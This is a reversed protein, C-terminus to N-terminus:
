DKTITSDSQISDQEIQTLTIQAEEKIDKNGSHQIISRLTAKAQFLEGKEIYNRAILLYSRDVWQTYSGYNANLDFLIDLSKDYDGSQYAIMGLSYNSEAGYADKEGTLLRFNEEAKESENLQLWSRAKIMVAEQMANLPKWEAKIIEDAALIADNYEGMKLYLMMLGQRANYTDKPTLNLDILLKYAQESEPFYNLQKNIEGLRNLIRGTLPNRVFKLDNFIPRAQELEGIRYYSDAQYYTAETKNGTTPYDKLYKKFAQAAKEYEFDFYLRKAAEFEILELSGSEPNVEKYQEIYKDLVSVTLGAQQLEQLGLIANIAIESEMHDKLLGEYDKQANDLDGLNKRAVGRNLLAEPKFTSNPHNEIVQSFYDIASQFNASEFQIMGSQFKAQSAYRSDNFITKFLGIAESGRDMSKLTMGKQFILYPSDLSRSLSQYTKYAEQYSKIAYLCDALRVQADNKVNVEIALSAKRFYPIAKEYQRKNFYAYGLGYNSLPNLASQNQYQIIAEDYKNARMAIEALHYHANDKISNESPFRLSEKFWKESEKFNGDNFSLVAKQYTVKQYVAKQTENVIGVDTLHKIALDYNSTRLYSQAILNQMSERKDSGKFLSLYDIAYSIAQTYQALEANISAAQFYSEEKISEIDSASAEIYATLANEYDKKKLYLRGLQFASLQAYEGGQIGSERLFEIAKDENGIKFKSVGSQYYLAASPRSPHLEIAREFFADAKAVQNSLAYAEGILQHFGSNTITKEDSLESQALKIVEDAEGNELRMKALFFKASNGFDESSKVKDFLNFAKDNNGLHYEAYGEYYDLKRLDDFGNERSFQFLNKSNQYKAEDLMLIGFIYGYSGKDRKNLETAQVAKLNEKSKLTDGAYFYYEGIHYKALPAIPHKPNASLWKEIQSEKSKGTKLESLYLLIEEDKTLDRKSKLNGVVDAYKRAQFSEFATLGSFDQSAISNQAYSLHLVLWFFVSLYKRLALINKVM